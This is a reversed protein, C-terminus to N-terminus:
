TPTIEALPLYIHLYSEGRFQALVSLRRWLIVLAGCLADGCATGCCVCAGILEILVCRKLTGVMEDRETEMEEGASGRGGREGMSGGRTAEGGGGSGCRGERGGEAECGRGSWRGGEEERGGVGRAGREGDLPAWVSDGQLADTIGSGDRDSGEADDRERTTRSLGGGM